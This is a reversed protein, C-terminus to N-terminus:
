EGTFHRRSLWTGTDFEGLFAFYDTDLVKRKDIARLSALTDLARELEGPLLLFISDEAFESEIEKLSYALQRNESLLTYAQRMVRECDPSVGM